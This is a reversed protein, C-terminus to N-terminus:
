GEQQEWPAISRLIPLLLHEFHGQDGPSGGCEAQEERREDSVCLGGRDAITFPLAEQIPGVCQWGVGNRGGSARHEVYVLSFEDAVPQGGSIGVLDDLPQSFARVAALIGPGRRYIARRPLVGGRLSGDIEGALRHWSTVARAIPQYRLETSALIAALLAHM